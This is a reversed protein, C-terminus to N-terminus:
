NQANTHMQKNAQKKMSNLRVDLRFLVGVYMFCGVFYVVCCLSIIVKQKIYLVLFYVFKRLDM